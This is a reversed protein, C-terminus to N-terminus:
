QAKLLVRIVQALKKVAPEAAEAPVGAYGLMFGNFARATGPMCTTSLPRLELGYEPAARSVDTDALPVDLMVSFHMGGPSELPTVIRALHRHLAAGLADGRQAYLRRMHRLHNTFRGSDIFDALAVQEAIRGWRMIAELAQGFAASLCRPVVMFGLRLGPFMTKSFTGLYVVPADTALGQVASLPAGTRRFESDYDDEVIWSRAKRALEILMLRRELTLVAGLPYQHSPTIYILKPPAERWLSPPPALGAPDVPVPVLQLGASQFAARAGHYGPNEVWAREGPEALVRACLDFSSQTGDTIFVQELECRVGRSVKLYEAIAQRLAPHGAARGYGLHQASLGHWARKICSRWQALPFENLAPVGPLFPSPTGHDEGTRGLGRVRQALAIKGTDLPASLTSHSLPLQTVRTGHRTAVVFGEDLLREYAYVVSNRAIGFGGALTRSSPLVIGPGLKGGLIAARLCEYLLRQQTLRGNGLNREFETFLLGYDMETTRLDAGNTPRGISGCSDYRQKSKSGANSQIPGCRPEGVSVGAGGHM